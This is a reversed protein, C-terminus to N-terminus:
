AKAQAETAERQFDHIKELEGKALVKNLDLLILLRNELKGVGRIYETSIESQLMANSDIDDKKLRMVESVDDVVMGVINHDQRTKALENEQEVIVIRMADTDDGETINLAKRLDIVPTITGRLNIVGEMFEPTNPIQTVETLKIIERVQSIEVGFEEKGLKFAVLQLEEDITVTDQEM